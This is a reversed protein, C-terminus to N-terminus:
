ARQQEGARTAPLLRRLHDVTPQYGGTLSACGLPGMGIAYDYVSAMAKSGPVYNGRDERDAATSGLARMDTIGGKRLSHSSFREAPLSHRRCTDKLQDRVHRASLVFYKEGGSRASFLEDPGESASYALFEVIDTIFQRENPSKTGVMKPKVVSKGKTSVGLVCCDTVMQTLFPREVVEHFFEYGGALRELGNGRDVTFALDHVRICHDTAKGEPKTYESIRACMDYGWMCALYTARRRIGDRSWGQGQWLRARIDLLLSVCYPLKVSTSAEGDRKARLEAPTLRCAARAAEIVGSALFATSRSTSSFHLRLSATVASAVKGRMGGEHRRMLFIGVLASKDEDAFNTHWPDEGGIEKELFSGWAAWHGDYSKWTSPLVSRRMFARLDSRSRDTLAGEHEGAKNCYYTTLLSADQM